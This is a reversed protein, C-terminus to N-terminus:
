IIGIQVTMTACTCSFKSELVVNVPKDKSNAVLFDYNGTTHREVELNYGDLDDWKAKNQKLELLEKSLVPTDTQGTPSSEKRTFQTLFTVLFVGGVLVAFGTVVQILSKM